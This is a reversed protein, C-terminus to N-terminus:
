EQFLEPKAETARESIEQDKLKKKLEPSSQKKVATSSRTITSFNHVPTFTLWSYLFFDKLFPGSLWFVLVMAAVLYVIDDITRFSPDLITMNALAFISLYILYNLFVLFRAFFNLPFPQKCLM